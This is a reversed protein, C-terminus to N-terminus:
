CKRAQQSPAPPSLWRRALRAYVWLPLLTSVLMVTAIKWLEAGLQGMLVAAGAAIPLFALASDKMLRNSGEILPAPLGRWHKWLLLGALLTFLGLLNGLNAHGWRSALWVALERVSVVLLAVGLLPRWANM